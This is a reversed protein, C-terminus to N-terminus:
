IAGGRRRRLLSGRLQLARTRDLGFMGQRLQPSATTRARASELGKKARLGEEELLDPERRM